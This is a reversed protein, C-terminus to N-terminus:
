NQLQFRNWDLLHSRHFLLAYNNRELLKCICRQRWSRILYDRAPGFEKVQLGGAAESSKSLSPKPGCFQSLDLQSHIRGFTASDNVLRKFVEPILHLGLRLQLCHVCALPTSCEITGNFM